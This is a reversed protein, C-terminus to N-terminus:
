AKKSKGALIGWGGSGILFGFTYWFGNNNTAFVAIDDNFVMGILGFPAIIGHLIGWLFGCPEGTVCAYVSTKEACGSFLALVFFATIFYVISTKMFQYKKIFVLLQDM